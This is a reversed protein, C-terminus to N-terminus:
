RSGAATAAADPLAGEPRGLTQAWNVRGTAQMLVFLTLVAGVAITLGAFGEFFFAYSFLVLYVLQAAGAQLVAFRLGAVLRLYSVVLAVSALAAVGFALHVDVHDVLYALLLHFAFFAASLFFYNMPHLSAGRVVGLIVLVTLFFLLGVPAFFTIRATLPGPNLRSPADMGIRQGTVLSDFSWTLRWGEATREKATPSLTGAPFDVDAFDTAMEMRFDRTRTVEASGFAYLWEGMGRSRYRIRVVATEGPELTASRSLTSDLGEGGAPDVGDLSFQFDDYVASESPFCYDVVLVRAVAEPNSARFEGDFDVEYTDYWLLGKRRPTLRLSVDLRTASWPVAVRVPVRRTVRRDVESGDALKERVVETRDEHHVLVAAPAVQQHRGGWLLEVERALQADSEGTREVVSAGLLSWAAATCLFILGIAMLRAVSM